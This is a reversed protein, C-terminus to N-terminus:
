HDKRSFFNKIARFIKPDGDFWQGIAIGLIVFLAILLTRWFGIVFLCIAIILGCVGGWFANEHGPFTKSVWSSIRTTFPVRDKPAEDADQTDSSQASSQTRVPHVSTSSPTSDDLEVTPKPTKEDAM